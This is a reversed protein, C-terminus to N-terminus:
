KLSTKLLCLCVCVDSVYAYALSLVLSMLMLVFLISVNTGGKSIDCNESILVAAVGIEREYVTTAM